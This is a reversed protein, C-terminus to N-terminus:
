VTINTPLLNLMQDFLPTGLGTVPDWGATANWSAYPVNVTNAGSYQSKGYCGRSGGTVIDTLGKGELSYIWPNLFGLTPKGENLRQANLLAIIAAVVPTSASTGSVSSRRGNIIVRFASGQAAIDPFGRGKPNYLGQWRSGLKSLYGNVAKGQYWPQPWIDSFGGSSFAVATEPNIGRTGGVSTIYPCSAPFFPLFRTTKKGDNTQCTSGPGFDGSGSLVSVGRVGLQAIQECVTKAYTVPLTQEEDGYSISITHPLEAPNTLSLLHAFFELWPENMSSAQTPFNLDPVLPGKGGTSYFHNRMPYTLPVTYQVDLTAESTYKKEDVAGGLLSSTTFNAAPAWPASEKAFQSLDNRGPLENLFGAVGIFGATKPDPNVSKIRYLDQLCKPTIQTRCSADIDEPSAIRIQEVPSKRLRTPTFYTTPHILKIYPILNAPLFVQKTRIQTIEKDALSRYTHFSTQMLMDAQRVTAVFNVWEGRLQIDSEGVSASKLWDIVAKTGFSSPQLLRQLEDKALYKGYQSSGITSVNQLAKQLLGENLPTLAVSFRLKSDALLTSDIEWGVPTGQLSDFAQYGSAALSFPQKWMCLLILIQWVM